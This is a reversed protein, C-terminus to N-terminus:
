RAAIVEETDKNSTGTDDNISRRPQVRLLAVQILAATIKASPMGALMFRSTSPIM